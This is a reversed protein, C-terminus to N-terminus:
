QKQSWQLEDDANLDMIASIDDFSYGSVTEDSVGNSLLYEEIDDFETDSLDDAFEGDELFRTMFDDDRFPSALMVRAAYRYRNTEEIAEDYNYLVPKGDNIRVSRDDSYKRFLNEHVIHAKIPRELCTIVYVKGSRKCLKGADEVSLIQGPKYFAQFDLTKVAKYIKMIRSIDRILANNTLDLISTRAIWGEDYMLRVRVGDSATLEILDNAIDDDIQQISVDSIVEADCSQYLEFAETSSLFKVM